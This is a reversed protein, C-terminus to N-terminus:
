EPGGKPRASEHLKEIYHWPVIVYGDMEEGAINLAPGVYPFYLKEEPVVVEGDNLVALLNWASIAEEETACHPGTMGCGFYCEALYSEGGHLSEFPEVDISEYGCNPCPKPKMEDEGM